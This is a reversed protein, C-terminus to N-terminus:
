STLQAGATGPGPHPHRRHLRLSGLAALALLIGLVLGLAHLSQQLGTPELRNSQAIRAGVVGMASAVAYLAALAAIARLALPNRVSTRMNWLGTWILAVGGLTGLMALTSVPLETPSLSLYSLGGAVSSGAAALALLVLLRPRM